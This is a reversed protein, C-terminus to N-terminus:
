AKKGNSMAVMNAIRYLLRAGVNADWENDKAPSIENIDFALIQRDSKVVKEILYLVQEAEFGGAVPTGTNPCLKPDLGDIDFSLYINQPLEAVIRDCIASWSEGGYQAHKIDRDFFTKVRGNSGDILDVEEQCYDRIGVQVLKEVNKIKLANYMISAHSFEFGEYANRLDAHADIQLIGFRGYKDSLAQMMGLPTSHDGGLLGVIKNRGLYHLVRHKVWDNLWLCGEHIEKHYSDIDQKKLDTKEDSLFEICAEAKERLLHSKFSIQEELDDFHIGYKWADKVIPDYLDVQYSADLVAYPADATGGGYSVTVEWPIPIIVIESEEETFPLGYMGSNVQGISNPDFAKIKEQKNM